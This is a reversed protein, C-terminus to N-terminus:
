PPQPDLNAVRDWFLNSDFMGLEFLRFSFVSILKNVSFAFSIFIINKKM